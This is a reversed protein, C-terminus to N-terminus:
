HSLRGLSIEEAYKSIIFNEDEQSTYHNPPIFSGALSFCELGCCFGERLGLPIDSFEDLIGADELALEWAEAKLKTVIPFIDDLGVDRLDMPSTAASLAPTATPAPPEERAASVASTSSSVSLKVGLHNTSGNITSTSSWDLQLDKTSERTTLAEACTVDFLPPHTSHNPPHHFPNHKFDGVPPTCHVELM